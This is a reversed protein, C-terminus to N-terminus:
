ESNALASSVAATLATRQLLKGECTRVEIVGKARLFKVNKMRDTLLSSLVAVDESVVANKVDRALVALETPGGCTTGCDGSYAPVGSGGAYCEEYEANSPCEACREDDFRASAPVEAERSGPTAGNPGGEELILEDSSGLDVQPPPECEEYWNHTTNGNSYTQESCMSCVPSVSGPVEHGRAYAWGVSTGGLILMAVIFTAIKLRLM